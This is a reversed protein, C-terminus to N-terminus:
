KNNYLSMIAYMDSLLRFPSNPTLYGNKDILKKDNENAFNDRWKCYFIVPVWENKARWIINNEIDGTIKSPIYYVIVLSSKSLKSLLNYWSLIIINNKPFISNKIMTIEETM